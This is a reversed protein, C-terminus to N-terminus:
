EEVWQIISIEKESLGAKIFFMKDDNLIVANTFLCDQFIVNDGSTLWKLNTNSFDCKIMKCHSFHTAEMFCNNFKCRKIITNDFNAFELFSNTFDCNEIYSESFDMFPSKTNKINLHSLHCKWFGVHNLESSEFTCNLLNCALFHAKSLKTHVLFAKHFRIDSFMFDSLMLTSLAYNHYSLDNLREIGIVIMRKAEETDLLKLREIQMNYLEVRNMRYLIKKLVFYLLICGLILLFVYKM